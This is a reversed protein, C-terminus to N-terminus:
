SSRWNPNMDIRQVIEMIRDIKGEDPDARGANLVLEGQRHAPVQGYSTFTTLPSEHGLNQSWAKFEEPTKCIREGLLTLTSRLSHPTFYPLGALAFARRFIKRVPEATSWCKPELGDVAFVQDAGVAIRTQPFLPDDDGYLKDERLYRVWAAFVQEFETGVPFFYTEIKKSFKTRVESPDQTVLRAALDLHKLKLSILASDRVGTLIAFSFIARDRCEVESDAPMAYLAAKIQELTPVKRTGTMQAVAIDNRSLNLYRIDQPDIKSRYGAERSLWRLFDQLSRMTTHVTARSLPRDSGTKKTTLMHKKFAMAQQKNFGAFDAFDTHSEFRHIAKRIQNITTPSKQDAQELLQFYARKIRENKPNYKAM